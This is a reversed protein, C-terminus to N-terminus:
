CDTGCDCPTYRGWCQPCITPHDQTQMWHSGVISGDGNGKYAWLVGDLVEFRVAKFAFTPCTAPSVWVEWMSQNASFQKIQANRHAADNEFHIPHVNLNMEATAM